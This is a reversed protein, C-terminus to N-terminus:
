FRLLRTQGYARWFNDGPQCEDRHDRPKQSCARIRKQVMGLMIGLDRGLCAVGASGKGMQDPPLCDM